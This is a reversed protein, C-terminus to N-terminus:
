VYGGDTVILNCGKIAEVLKVIREGKKLEDIGKLGKKLEKVVGFRAIGVLYVVHSM